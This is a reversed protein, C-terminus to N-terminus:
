FPYIFLTFTKWIISIKKIHRLSAENPTEGTLFDQHKYSIGTTASTIWGSFQTRSEAVGRVVAHWAERDKVIDWLKSLSMDMSDTIGNLWRIRQHGKEEQGWDKGDDPDKGSLWSKVHPPWLIPAEAETDTRGVFILSQNEKPNVPKIDKSDLPSELTKELVLIQFCWTKPAWGKKNDLEWMQVHSSSCDQSARQTPM